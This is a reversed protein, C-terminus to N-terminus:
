SKRSFGLKILSQEVIPNIGDGWFHKNTYDILLDGELWVTNLTIALQYVDEMNKLLKNMSSTTVEEKDKKEWIGTM